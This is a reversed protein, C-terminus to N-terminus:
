RWAALRAFNLGEARRAADVDDDFLSASVGDAPKGVDGQLEDFGYGRGAPASRQTQHQLPPAAPQASAM